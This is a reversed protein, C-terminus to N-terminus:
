RVVPRDAGHRAAGGAHRGRGAATSGSVPRDRGDGGARDASLRLRLDGVGRRGPAGRGAARRGGPEVRRPEVASPGARLGQAAETGVEAAHDAPLRGGRARHRRGGVRDRRRRVRRGGGAQRGGGRDTGDQVVVPDPRRGRPRPTNLERLLPLGPVSTAGAVLVRMLERRGERRERQRAVCDGTDRHDGGAGRELWGIWDGAGHHPDIIHSIAHLAWHLTAFALAPVRWSPWRVAALLLLGQPMEFTANDFIYHDNRIGFTGLTDFFTGPAFM